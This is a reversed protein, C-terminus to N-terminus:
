RYDNHLSINRDHIRAAQRKWEQKREPDDSDPFKPIPYNERQPMDGVLHNNSWFQEMVDLVRTNVKFPTSQIHNLSDVVDKM